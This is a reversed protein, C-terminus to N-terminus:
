VTMCTNDRLPRGSAFGAHCEWCKFDQFVKYGKAVSFSNIPIPGGVINIAEPEEANKFDESLSKLYYVVNWRDTTSMGIFGPMFGPVGRTVTRFLDDDLPMEGSATSRFKYIGATFDRPQPALDKSLFLMYIRCFINMRGYKVM